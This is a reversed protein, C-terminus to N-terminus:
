ANRSGIAAIAVGLLILSAGVLVHSGPVEGFVLYGLVSSSIPEILIVLTVLTPSIHHVAWNLSTHGMLQPVLAMLIMWGYIQIPHGLYSSGLFLPLPVLILAATTYAIAVHQRINIGRRQATRGLLFHLSFAWSGVLALGNGLDPNQGIADSTAGQMGINISGVLTIVIGIFTSISLKERFWLWSLLAVWIPNTTVITTSAAISTYSLSTIWTAFHIALLFGSMLSYLIGGPQYTSPQFQKWTPILVVSALALRSAALVLSFGVSPQGVAALALRIFIAATSVCFVGVALIAFVQWRPAKSFSTM